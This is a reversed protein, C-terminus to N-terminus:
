EVIHIPKTISTRQLVKKCALSGGVGMRQDTRFERERRKGPVRKREKKGRMDQTTRGHGTLRGGVRPGFLFLDQDVFAAPAVRDTILIPRGM